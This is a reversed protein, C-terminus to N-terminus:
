VPRWTLSLHNQRGAGTELAKASGTSHFVAVTIVDGAAVPFGTAINAQLGTLGNTGTVLTGNVNLKLEYGTTGSAMRVSSKADCWGSKVVTFNTGSVTFVTTDTKVATGFPISTLANNACSTGTNTEYRISHDRLENLQSARVRQGATFAM